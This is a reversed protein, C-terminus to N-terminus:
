MTGEIIFVLITQGSEANSFGFSFIERSGDDRSRATFRSSVSVLEDQPGLKRILAWAQRRFDKYNDPNSSDFANGKGLARVLDEVDSASFDKAKTTIKAGRPLAAERYYQFQEKLWEESMGKWAAKRAPAPIVKLSGGTLATTGTTINGDSWLTSINEVMAALSDGESFTNLMSSKFDAAASVSLFAALCFLRAFQTFM